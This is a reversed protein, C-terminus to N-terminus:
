EGAEHCGPRDVKGRLWVFLQTYEAYVNARVALSTLQLAHSAFAVDHETVEVLPEATKPASTPESAGDTDQGHKSEQKASAERTNM